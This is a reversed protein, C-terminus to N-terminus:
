KKQHQYQKIETVRAVLRLADMTDTEDNCWCENKKQHSSSHSLVSDDARVLAMMMMTMMM